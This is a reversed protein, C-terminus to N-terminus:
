RGMPSYERNYQSPGPSQLQLCQGPFASFDACSNEKGQAYPILSLFSQNLIITTMSTFVLMWHVITKVQNQGTGSHRVITNQFKNLSEKTKGIHRM